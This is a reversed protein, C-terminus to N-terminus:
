LIHYNFFLHKCIFERIIVQWYNELFTSYTPALFEFINATKGFNGFKQKHDHHAQIIFYVRACFDFLM